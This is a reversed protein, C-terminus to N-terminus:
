LKLLRIILKESELEEQHAEIYDYIADDTINYQQKLEDLSKREDVTYKTAEQTKKIANEQAKLTDGWVGEGNKVTQTLKDYHQGTEKLANNFSSITNKDTAYSDNINRLSAEVEEIAKDTNKFANSGEKGNEKLEKRFNILEKKLTLLATKQEEYSKAAEIHSAGVAEMLQPTYDKSLKYIATITDNVEEYGNNVRDLAKEYETLGTDILEEARAKKEEEILDIAEERAKNTDLLALREADYKDCNAEIISNLEERSISEDQLRKSVDDLAKYENEFAVISDRIKQKQQEIANNHAIVGATVLGIAAIVWGIVPVMAEMTLTTAKLGMNAMAVSNSYLNWARIANPIVRLLSGIGSGIDLIGGAIKAFNIGVLLSTITILVPPLGGLNNILKLISTALEVCWKAADQLGGKGLVFNEFEAKLATTKAELSQMYIENQAMTSGSSNLADDYAKVATDMQNMVAAFVKYQNVGALTNGLAVKEASSMKDWAPKLDVLIDYTSRLEGSADKVAVGYKALDDSSKAM